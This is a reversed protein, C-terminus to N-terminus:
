RAPESSVLKQFDPRARLDDLDSDTQMEKRLWAAEEPRASQFARALLGVAHAAHAEAQRQREASSQRGDGAAAKSALAHVCAVYYCTEPSAAAAAEVDKVAAVAIQWDGAQILSGAWQLRFKLRDKDEALEVVREWDRAAEAHRGLQGYAQARDGHANLLGGRLGAHGPATRLASSATRVARDFWELSAQPGAVRKELSGRNQYAAALSRAMHAVTPNDRVLPELLAQAKQYAERAKETKKGGYLLGLNNYADAMYWAHHLNAPEDRRLTTYIAIVRQFSREAQEPRGTQLYLAGLNQCTQALEARFYAVQSHDRALQEWITMAKVMYREARERQQALPVLSGLTRCCYALSIQFATDKPHHDVLHELLAVAEAVAARGDDVRGTDHYLVALNQYAEALAQEYGADGPFRRVLERHLELAQRDLEEARQLRGTRAAVWGLMRAAAALDLRYTAEGPYKRALDEWATLANIGHEEAPGLRGLEKSLRALRLHLLAAQHREEPAGPARAALEEWLRLAQRYNEGAADHRGQAEHVRGIGEYAAATQRRAAPEPNDKERLLREYYRLAEELLGTRIEDSGPVKLLESEGVRTVMREVVEQALRAYQQAAERERNADTVAIRLRGNYWWGGATLSLVAVASVLILAAALPRRRAWKWLREARGAPRARIPMGDLFRRLDDALDRASAYRRSPEKELCKLCVTQVDRPLRPQLRSPHVPEQTRVQELTELPTAAKFPPRGTLCEYLIAGLAYVDAPVGIERNLGAAQEPAMYSPTGLVTGTKTPGVEEELHKALGFDTIKPTVKALPPSSGGSEEKRGSAQSAEPPENEGAALLINAPKLDRHVIGQDHAAQMARALTEVLEAAAAPPLPNGALHKELTGGGVYEMSFFPRDGLEGVEYVQVINPHQLRAVAQAEARFRVLQRIGAYPGALIMKLAVVRGLARQRAKYVVGMGGRGLEQLIQYGTM